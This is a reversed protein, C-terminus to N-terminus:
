LIDASLEILVRDTGLLSWLSCEVTPEYYVSEPETTKVGTLRSDLESKFRLPTLLPGSFFCPLNLRRIFQTSLFTQPPLLGLDDLYAAAEPCTGAGSGLGYCAINLKYCFDSLASLICSSIFLDYGLSFFRVLSSSSKIRSYVFFLARPMVADRRDSM